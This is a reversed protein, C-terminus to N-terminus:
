DLPSMYYEENEKFHHSLKYIKTRHQFDLKWFQRVPKLGMKMKKRKENQKELM